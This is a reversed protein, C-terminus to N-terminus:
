SEDDGGFMTQMLKREIERDTLGDARLKERMDDLDDETAQAAGYELVNEPGLPKAPPVIEAPLFTEAVVAIREFAEAIREAALVFRDGQDATLIRDFLSM